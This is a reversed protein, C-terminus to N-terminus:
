VRITGGRKRDFVYFGGMRQVNLWFAHVNKVFRTAYSGAHCGMFHCFGDHVAVFNSEDAAREPAFWLPEEHHVVLKAKKTEQHGCVACLRPERRLWERMAKTVEYTRVPHAAAYGINRSVVNSM